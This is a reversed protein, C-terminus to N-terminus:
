VDTFERSEEYVQAYKVDLSCNIFFRTYNGSPIDNTNYGKFFDLQKYAATGEKYFINYEHEAEDTNFLMNRELIIEKPTHNQPSKFFTIISSDQDDVKIHGAIDMYLTWFEGTENTSQALVTDYTLPRNHKFAVKVYRNNTDSTTELDIFGSYNYYLDGSAYIMRTGFYHDYNCLYAESYDNVLTFDSNEHDIYNNIIYVRHDVKNPLITQSYGATNKELPLTINSNDFTRATLKIDDEIELRDIMSGPRVELGKFTIAKKDTRTGYSLDGDIEIENNENGLTTFLYNSDDMKIYKTAHSTTIYQNRKHTVYNYTVLYRSIPNTVKIRNAIDNTPYEVWEFNDDLGGSERCYNWTTLKYDTASVWGELDLPKYEHPVGSEYGIYFALSDNGYVGSHFYSQLGDSPVLTPAGSYDLIDIDYLKLTGSVPTYALPIYVTDYVGTGYPNNFLTRYYTKEGQENFYFDSDYGIAKYTSATSDWYYGNNPTYHDIYYVENDVNTDGSIPAEIRRTWPYEKELESYLQPVLIEDIGTEEYSQERIPLNFGSINASDYNGLTDSKMKYTQYTNNEFATSADVDLNMLIIGSGEPSTRLYELGVIGYAVGSITLQGMHEIRTPNGDYFEKTDTIKITRGDGNVINSTLNDRIMVEYIDHDTGYDFLALNNSHKAEDLYEYLLDVEIGHMLNILKYGNSDSQTLRFKEPM